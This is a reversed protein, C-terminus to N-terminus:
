PCYVLLLGSTQQKPANNNVLSLPLGQLKHKELWWLDQPIWGLAKSRKQDGRALSWPKAVVNNPGAKNCPVWFVQCLADCQTSGYRGRYVLVDVPGLGAKEQIWIAFYNKSQSGHLEQRTTNSKKTLIGKM